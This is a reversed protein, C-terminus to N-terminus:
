ADAQCDFALFREGRSRGMDPPRFNYYSDFGHRQSHDPLSRPDGSQFVRLLTHKGMCMVWSLLLTTSTHLSPQTFAFTLPDVFPQLSPIITWM